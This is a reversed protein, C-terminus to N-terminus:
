DNLVMVQKKEAWQRLAQAMLTADREAKFLDVSRVTLVFSRNDRQRIYPVVAATYECVKVPNSGQKIGSLAKSSGSTRWDRNVENAISKFEFMATELEASLRNILDAQAELRALSNYVSKEPKVWLPEPKIHSQSRVESLSHGSMSFGSLSRESISRGPM